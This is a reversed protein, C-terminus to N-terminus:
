CACTDPPAAPHQLGLQDHIWHTLAGPEGDLAPNALVDPPGGLYCVNAKAFHGDLVADDLEERDDEPIDPSILLFAPARDGTYALAEQASSVCEVRLGESELGLEFPGRTHCRTCVWLVWPAIDNSAM